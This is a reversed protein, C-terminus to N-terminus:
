WSYKMDALYVKGELLFLFSCFPFSTPFVRAVIIKQRGIGKYIEM